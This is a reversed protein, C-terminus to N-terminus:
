GGSGGVSATAPVAPWGTVSWALAMGALRARYGGHRIVAWGGRGEEGGDGQDKAADSDADGLEHRHPQEGLYGLAQVGADGLGTVCDARIGHADDDTRGDEGCPAGRPRALPEEKPEREGDDHAIRQGRQCRGVLRKKNGPDHRAQRVPGVEADGREDGDVLEAVVGLAEHQGAWGRWARRAAALLGRDPDDLGLQTAVSM